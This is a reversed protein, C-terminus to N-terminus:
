SCIALRGVSHFCQLAKGEHTIIVSEFSIGKVILLVFVTRISSFVKVCLYVPVSTCLYVPVSACQCQCYM